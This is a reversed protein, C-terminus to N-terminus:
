PRCLPLHQIKCRAVTPMAKNQGFPKMQQSNIAVSGNRGNSTSTTLSVHEAKANSDFASTLKGILAAKSQAPAITLGLRRANAGANLM